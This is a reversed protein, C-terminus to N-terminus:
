DCLSMSTALILQRKDTNVGVITDGNSWRLAGYSSQAKGMFRSKRFAEVIASCVESTLEGDYAIDISEQWSDSYSGMRHTGPVMTRSKVLIKGNFM